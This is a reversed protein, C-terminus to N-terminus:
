RRQNWLNKGTFAACLVSNALFDPDQVDCDFRIPREPWTLYLTRRKMEFQLWLICPIGDSLAYRNLLMRIRFEIECLSFLKVPSLFYPCFLLAFPYM